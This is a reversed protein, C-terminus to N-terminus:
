QVNKGCFNCKVGNLSVLTKDSILYLSGEKVGVTKKCSNCIIKKNEFSSGEKKNEPKKEQVENIIQINNATGIIKRKNNKVM